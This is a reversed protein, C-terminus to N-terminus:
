GGTGVAGYPPRGRHPPRVTGPAPGGRPRPLRGLLSPRQAPGPPLHPRLTRPGLRAAATRVAPHRPAPTPAHPPRAPRAPRPRARPTRGAGTRLPRSRHPFRPRGSLRRRGPHRHGPRPARRFQTRAAVATRHVLSPPRREPHPGDGH